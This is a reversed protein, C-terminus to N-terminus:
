HGLDYIEILGIGTTNSKGRVIATYNDPALNAVLASERDDGPPVGMARIEAERPQGTQDNIKWNDNTAITDGNGNYLEMTPDQLADSIQLSPGMARRVVRPNTDGSTGVIFGGILVDDNTGIVGRSLASM